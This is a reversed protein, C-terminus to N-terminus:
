YYEVLNIGTVKRMPMPGVLRKRLGTGKCEASVPGRRHTDVGRAGNTSSGHHSPGGLSKPDGRGRRGRKGPDVGCEDLAERFNPRKLRWILCSRGVPSRRFNARGSSSMLYLFKGGLRLCVEKRINEKERQRRETWRLGM